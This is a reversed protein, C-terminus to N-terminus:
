HTRRLRRRNAHRAVTRTPNIVTVDTFATCEPEVKTAGIVTAAACATLLCARFMCTAGRVGM